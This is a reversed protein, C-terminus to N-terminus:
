KCIDGRGRSCLACSGCPIVAPVIVRRGVLRAVDAGAQVITGAVEHGLVLPLAHRTPVGDYFYALDTHCVGCGEVAVVVEGPGPAAIECTARVLAARRERM